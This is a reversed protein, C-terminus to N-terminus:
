NSFFVITFLTLWRTSYIHFFMFKPLVLAVDADSVQKCFIFCHKL